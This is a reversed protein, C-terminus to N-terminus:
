RNIRTANAVVLLSSLSMGLAALWPPVVGAIALPLACANYGIAWAINQRIVRITKRAVRYAADLAWLNDHLLVLDAQSKALDCANGVAVSVYGQALMPADNVGDGVVVSVEGAGQRRDLEALKEEPRMGAHVDKIGLEDAISRAVRANDGSIMATSLGRARLEALLDAAGPKVEDRFRFTAAIGRDHALFAIKDAPGADGAADEPKTVAASHAVFDASGFWFRVGDVIGTIGQGPFNEISTAGL